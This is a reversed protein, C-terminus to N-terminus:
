DLKMLVNKVPLRQSSPFRIKVSTVKQQASSRAAAFLSMPTSFPQRLDWTPYPAKEGSSPHVRAPGGPLIPGREKYFNMLYQM